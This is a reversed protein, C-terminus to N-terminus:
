LSGITVTLYGGNESGLDLPFFRCFESAGGRSRGLARLLRLGVLGHGGHPRAVGPPTPQPFNPDAFM